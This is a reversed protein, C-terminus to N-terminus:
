PRRKATGEIRWLQTALRTGNEPKFWSMDQIRSSTIYITGDPGESFTDPWRLRKDQVLTTIRDGDRVKVADQEIASLYLRGRADIWLGDTPETVGAREVRAELNEKSLSPNELAETSIRYLTRGSLAKWYLTRGEASLAISDAAFEVGRRDPRRLERGDTRVVVDKEPQTSPHGDLVRRAKGTELDVIVLAGEAGADTLYAHRGDPSFRVDNLYSGQPAVTEDFRIVQAVKNTKLDIRVLKPGGQVVAATAPAAPDVVWLNGRADALVSQVCVFHDGASMQNKRANRWANWESDPYPRIQGDRMVEAVSIPADETWRPFNVFIRGGQSVTVGTVQHEFSAVQQLRATAPTPATREQALSATTLITMVVAASAVTLRNM